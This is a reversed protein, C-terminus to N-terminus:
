KWGLKRPEYNTGFTINKLTKQTQENVAYILDSFFFGFKMFCWSCGVKVGLVKYMCRVFLFFILKLYSLSKNKLGSIKPLGKTLKNFSWYSVGLYTISIVLFLNNSDQISYDYDHSVPYFNSLKELNSWKELISIVVTM